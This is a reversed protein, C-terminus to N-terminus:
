EHNKKNFTVKSIKLEEGQIIKDSPNGCECVFRHFQVEFNKNCSKCYAIIPLITVELEVDQYEKFEEVYAEFANQILIPQINSLLGAQIEIKVIDKYTDPYADELTQFIDKVISLEHM